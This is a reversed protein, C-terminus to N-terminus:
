AVPLLAAVNPSSKMMKRDSVGHRIPVNRVTHEAGTLTWDDNALTRVNSRYLDTACEPSKSAIVSGWEGM